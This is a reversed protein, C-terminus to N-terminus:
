QLAFAQTPATFNATYRAYGKTIRLDDINGLFMETGLTYAGGGVIIRGGDLYTNTDTYSSGVQVGDVYMKTVGSSKVVAFHYWTNASIANGVIREAANTYFVPKATSNISFTPYFGNTSSPRFDLMIRWNSHTVITSYFWFEVTWDGSGLAQNNSSTPSFLYDGTGDFAISGGGWKSQTTSIQANGVTELVNKGTADIIGGNTFNICLTSGTPSPPATPVTISTDSPSYNATGNTVVFGSMYGNVSQTGGPIAGVNIAGAVYNTSVTGQINRSGNVFIAAGNTSTASRVAVVHNWQNLKVPTGTTSLTAGTGYTGINLNLQGSSAVLQVQIAGNTSCCFVMGTSAALPYVWFEVTFANTGFTLTSSSSLFDGTGDFYGSGGNTAASYAATPAFPSFAQVSPSGNVTIAFANSSNDVFRNSQCTLLSTNTIATLPTTSPTFAATYVATGKVVRVNSLYGNWRRDVGSQNGITCAVNASFNTSVTATAVSIGNEYITLATGSRVVAVHVWQNLPMAASALTSTAAVSNYFELKGASGIRLWCNNALGIIWNDTQSATAFVFAEMTFDGSGFAFAASSATSLMDSSSSGSSVSWGTQSFPSFTGQTTNGNRTISFNNTSSDLFTNNQAGNTGNGPLLLTVLNFYADTAVASVSKFFGKVGAFM